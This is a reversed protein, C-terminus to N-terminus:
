GKLRQPQSLLISYRLGYSNSFMVLHEHLAASLYALVGTSAYDALYGLVRDDLVVFLWADGKETETLM